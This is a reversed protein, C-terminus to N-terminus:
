ENVKPYTVGEDRLQKALFQAFDESCGTYEVTTVVSVVTFSGFKDPRVEVTSEAIDHGNRTAM